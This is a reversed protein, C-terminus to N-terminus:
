ILNGNVGGGIDALQEDDLLQFDIMPFKRLHLLFFSLLRKSFGCFDSTFRM